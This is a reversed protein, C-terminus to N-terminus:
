TGERDTAAADKIKAVLRRAKTLAEMDSHASLSAIRDECEEQGEGKPNDPTVFQKQWVRMYRGNPRYLYYHAPRGLRRRGQSKALSIRTEPDYAIVNTLLFRTWTEYDQQEIFDM